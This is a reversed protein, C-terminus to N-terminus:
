EPKILLREQIEDSVNALLVKVLFIKYDAASGLGSAVVLVADLAEKAKDGEGYAIAEFLENIEKAAAHEEPTLNVRNPDYM